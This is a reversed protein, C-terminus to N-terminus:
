GHLAKSYALLAPDLIQHFLGLCFDGTLFVIFVGFLLTKFILSEITAKYSPVLKSCFAAILELVGYCALLTLSIKFGVSLGSLLIELLGSGLYLLSLETQLKIVDFSNIYLTILQEPLGLTLLLMLAGGEFFVALYNSNEYLPDYASGINIGRGFESLDCFTDIAIFILIFPLIISFGIVFQQILLLWSFSTVQVYLEIASFALLSGLALRLHLALLNFKVPMLLCIPLARFFALLFNFILAKLM